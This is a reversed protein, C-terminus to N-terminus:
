KSLPPLDKYPGAFLMDKNVRINFRYGPRIELTPQIALNRDTLRAGVQSVQMGVAAAAIDASSLGKDINDRPRQSIQYGASFLSSLVAGGIIRGWHNNVQDHFGAYGSADQGVMTGLNISSADPFIIRHWVVQVREQGFSLNSNYYGLVRSGKPILLHRGTGTDYVNERVVAHMEGPLDSNVGQDLVAPIDWGAKVEYPSLAANRSAKLYNDQMAQGANNFQLKGAQDNQAKYGDGAGGGAMGTVSALAAALGNANVGAPVGAGGALQALGTLMNGGATAAAGPNAAAASLLATMPNSTATADEPKKGIPTGARQAALERAWAEERLREEPSMETTQATTPTISAEARLPPTRQETEPKQSLNGEGIRSAIEKGANTASEADREQQTARLGVGQRTAVGYAIAGLLLSLVLLAAFGARRNLRTPEPPAPRMELPTHQIAETSM